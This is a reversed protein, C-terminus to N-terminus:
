HVISGFCCDFASSSNKIEKDYGLWGQEGAFYDIQQASVSVVSALVACLVALLTRMGARSLMICRM